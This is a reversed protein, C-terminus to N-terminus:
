LEGLGRRADGTSQTQVQFKGFPYRSNWHAPRLHPYCSILVSIGLFSGVIHWRSSSSDESTCSITGWGEGAILPPAVPPKPVLGGGSREFM